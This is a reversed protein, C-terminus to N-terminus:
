NTRPLITFAISSINETAGTIGPYLCKVILFDAPTKQIRSARVRNLPLVFM